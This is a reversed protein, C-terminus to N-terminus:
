YGMEAKLDQDIWASNIAYYSMLYAAGYYNKVWPWWYTSYRGSGISMYAADNVVTPVLPLFVANSEDIDVITNGLNWQDWVYPDRYNALNWRADPPAEMPGWKHVAEQPTNTNTGSITVEWSERDKERPSRSVSEVIDIVLDVGIEEWYAQLMVIVDAYEADTRCLGIVTFGDPYGADIIMQKAKAPDYSYLEQTEPDLEEYSKHGPVGEMIPWNYLEGGIYIAENMAQLNLGIWMARRVDRNNFPERDLNLVILRAGSSLYSFKQLEPNSQALTQTYKADMPYFIDYKGTRLASLQTSADPIVPLMLKDVFPLQYEEGLITM